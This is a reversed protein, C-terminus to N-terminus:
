ELRQGWCPQDKTLFTALDLGKGVAKFTRFDKCWEEDPYEGAARAWEHFRLVKGRLDSLVAAFLLWHDAERVERGKKASKATSAKEQMQWPWESKAM